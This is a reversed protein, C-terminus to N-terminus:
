ALVAAVVEAGLVLAWAACWAAPVALWAGPGAAVRPLGRVGVAALGAALVSGVVGLELAEFALIAGLLVAVSLGAVASAAAVIAWGDGARTM